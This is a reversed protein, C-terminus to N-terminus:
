RFYSKCTIVRFVQDTEAAVLDQGPKTTCYVPLPRLWFRTQSIHLLPSIQNAALEPAEASDSDRLRCDLAVRTNYVM